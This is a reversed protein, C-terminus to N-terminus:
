QANGSGGCWDCSVKGNSCENCTFSSTQAAGMCRNCRRTGFGGCLKCTKGPKMEGEQRVVGGLNQVLSRWEREIPGESQLRSYEDWRAENESVPNQRDEEIWGPVDAADIPEPYTRVLSFGDGRFRYIKYECSAGAQEAARVVTSAMADVIEHRTERIVTLENAPLVAVIGSPLEVRLRRDTRINLYFQASDLKSPLGSDMSRNKERPTFEFYSRFVLAVAFVALATAIWGPGSAAFTLMDPASEDWYNAPSSVDASLIAKAPTRAAYRLSGAKTAIKAKCFSTTRCSFAPFIVFFIRSM